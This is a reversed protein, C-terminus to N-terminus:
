SPWTLIEGTRRHSVAHPGGSEVRATAGGTPRDVGPKGWQGAGALFIRRSCLLDRLSLLVCLEYVVREIRGQKDVVADQWEPPVVDDLPINQDFDYFRGRGWCTTYDSVLEGLAAMVPWCGLDRCRFELGALLLKIIQQYYASYTGRLVTRKRRARVADRAESDRTLKRLEQESAIPYLVTRVTDDPRDLAARALELLLVDRTQRPWAADAAEQGLRHEARVRIQHLLGVLVRGLLDTIEKRRVSCLASLLTVRVARPHARLEASGASAARACWAEVLEAPVDDFLDSPLRLAQVATQKGIEKLLAGLWVHDANSEELKVLLDTPLGLAQLSMLSEIELLLKKLNMSGVESRLEALSWEQREESGALLTELQDASDGMRDAISHCLLMEFDQLARSAVQRALNPEPPEVEKARCHAILATALKDRGLGARGTEDTLWALWQREDGLDVPCRLVDVIQGQLLEVTDKTFESAALDVKVTGGGWALLM